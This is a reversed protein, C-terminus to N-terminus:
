EAEATIPLLIRLLRAQSKGINAKQVHLVKAQARRTYTLTRPCLQPLSPISVGAVWRWEGLQAGAAAWLLATCPLRQQAGRKETISSLFPQGRVGEKAQRM